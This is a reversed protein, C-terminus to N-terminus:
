PAELLNLIEDLAEQQTRTLDISIVLDRCTELVERRAKAEGPRNNRREVPLKAGCTECVDYGLYGPDEIGETFIVGECIPCPKLQESM